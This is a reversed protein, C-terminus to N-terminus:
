RHAWRAFRADVRSRLTPHRPASFTVSVTAALGGRRAELKRYRSSLSLVLAAYGPEPSVSAVRATALTRRALVVRHRGGRRIAVTGSAQAQLTGPGPLAVYLRIRGDSMSRATAGIQWPASPAPNPPTLSIAQEATQPTFTIRPVLFADAGDVNGRQLSRPTNNDGFVLNSATSSYALALGDASLSPSLAGDDAGFNFFYPDEVGVTADEHPHESAGGEYGRTVRTLTDNGLDVDYVENMGAVAAPASVFSPSGLPFVTRDTTFAVQMGDPSIALDTIPANTRLSEESSSALETLPRTAPTRTFGAHMDAVYLDPHRGAGGAGAGLAVPPATALFAVRYGDGSLQPVDNVSEEGAFVGGAGQELTRQVAFPGQCPDGAVPTEPLQQEGSAACGPAEPDSGGTVRRTPAAEGDSIRRWVPEAWEPPIAEGPLTAVQRGLQQAMWAVTSGDSSISAGVVQNLQYPQAVRFRPPRGHSAVAGYLGGGEGVTPVAEPLETSPDIAPKGTEPDRRVSVLRTSDSALERVAVQLAPTHPRPAEGHEEDEAELQPYRALNSVATTVFVVKNGDASIASRGAALSGVEEASQAGSTAYTLPELSGNPASVIRFAGPADPELTMDRVYVNPSEGFHQPPDPLANTIAALHGGENTTFSVYRGDGSVSPLMADGGAVQELHGPAGVERRWVGTVGGVSGDFVVYRGDPSIAPDHAYDAQQVPSASVLASSGFVDARAVGGLLGTLAIAVPLLPVRRM